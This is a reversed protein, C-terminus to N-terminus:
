DQAEPQSTELPMWPPFELKIGMWMGLPLAAARSGHLITDKM